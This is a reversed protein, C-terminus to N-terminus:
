AMTAHGQSILLRVDAPSDIMGVLMGRWLSCTNCRGREAGLQVLAEQMGAGARAGQM